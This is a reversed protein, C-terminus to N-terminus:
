CINNAGFYAKVSYLEKQKNTNNM